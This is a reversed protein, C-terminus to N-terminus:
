NAPVVDTVDICRSTAPVASIAGALDILASASAKDYDVIVETAPTRGYSTFRFIPEDSEDIIWDVGGVEVCQATTPGPVEVGCRLLVTAPEGWAGTGQANTERLRQEGLAEPLRVVVEACGPDAADAAPELAVAATCGALTAVLLAATGLAVLSRAPPRPATRSIM